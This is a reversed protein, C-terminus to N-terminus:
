LITYYLKTNYCLITHYLMAYEPDVLHESVRADGREPFHPLMGELCIYIYIYIYIYVCTYVYREREREMCIYIYIYNYIYIYIYVLICMTYNYYETNYWVVVHRSSSGPARPPWWPAGQDNKNKNNKKM